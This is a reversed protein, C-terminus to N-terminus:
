NDGEQEFYKTQIAHALARREVFLDEEIVHGVEGLHVLLILLEENVLRSPGANSDFLKGLTNGNLNLASGQRLSHSSVPPIYSSKMFLGYSYFWLAWALYVVNIRYIYINENPIM